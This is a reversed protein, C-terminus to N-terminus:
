SPPICAGGGADDDACVYGTRCTGQGGVGSCSAFCYAQTGDTTSYCQSGSPCSASLCEQSCYGGPYSASTVCFGAGCQSNSTCPQGIVSTTQEDESRYPVLTFSVGEVTEGLVVPVTEITTADRWFGVREGDEFFEEDGDDDITALVYYTRPTLNVSYAYGGSAPVVAVGEEDVQWEGAEDQYAFAVVADKDQTSGVQFKVLVEASEGTNATLGVQAVYSGNALGSTNVAVALARSGYAALSLTNGSPFSLARAQPGKATATVQLSGGGVNRVTLQQTGNGSFSLQTAGVGLKPPAAPETSGTKARLVAAQANVLGAGCGQSCQSSTDATDKLIQEAQAATLNPNVSKMLAVIGAVHPAAMSTGQYYDYSPQKNADLITSYVGDPKGDGNLDESTEGGTAMVDVAAGYNSYSSRRGNFRTAGVCIVNQQNCPAFQTSDMNSNGAAVVIIVGQAVADDIVEQLAQSPSSPGGLSMNIVKAPNANVPLGPVTRGIAWQIGAAIDAFSGSGGGLVRVPLIRGKWTVGAVGKSENSVAGITGAVHAGHWSSGGNPQDKGMDTPDTDRGNGDQSKSSDSVLDAGQLVRSDLDPHRVIGSDLVGIVVTDSGTTVDWAAPLNMMPYHWQRSYSPDNPTVQAYLRVNPEAYRVGGLKAVQRALSGSEGVRMSRKDLPEYGVVHLSDSIYGKHVARYGPVRVRALAAAEPLGAEEFRVIVDGPIADAAESTSLEARQVGQRKAALARSISQSLKQAGVQRLLPAPQASETPASQLRFPALSGEVTGTEEVLCATLGLLGLVALRRLM